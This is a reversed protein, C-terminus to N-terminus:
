RIFPGPEVYIQELYEDLSCPPYIEIFNAEGKTVSVTVGHGAFILQNSTKGARSRVTKDPATVDITKKLEEWLLATLREDSVYIIKLVDDKYYFHQSGTSVHTAETIKEYGVNKNIQIDGTDPKSIFEQYSLQLCKQYYDYNM